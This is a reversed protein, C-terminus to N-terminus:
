SKVGLKARLQNVCTDNNRCAYVSDVEYRKETGYKTEVRRTVPLSYATSVTLPQGCISCTM